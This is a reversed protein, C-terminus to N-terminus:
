RGRRRKSQRGRFQFLPRGVKKVIIRSVDTTTMTHLVPTVVYAKGGTTAGATWGQLTASSPSPQDLVKFTGSHRVGDDDRAGSVRLLGPTMLTQNATFSLLGGASVAFVPFQTATLDRGLMSWGTLQGFYAQLATYWYPSNYFEGGSVCDDPICRIITPRINADSTRTKCLLAMQPVDTKLQTTGDAGVATGPYRTAGTSSGGVPMVQQYRQGVIAAQPPLLAARAQMLRGFSALTQPGFGGNYVSESWGGVRQVAAGGTPSTAMQMVM